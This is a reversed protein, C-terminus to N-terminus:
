HPKLDQETKLEVTRLRIEYKFKAQLENKM